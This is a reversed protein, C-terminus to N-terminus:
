RVAPAAKEEDKVYRYIIGAATDSAHGGQSLINWLAAYDALIRQRYDAETLIKELEQKLAEVNMEGQILEKVVPKDMILNVLSIYKVKILRRAIEYSIQDGKYCVAEPVGFLATELTATGSTVLAASAQTLLGYTNNRITQVGPYGELLPAFFTDDLSPAQAVIFQYEPFYKSVALMVPLKLAVEQKRSGPLLAVIPKSSLPAQVQRKAEEVVEVLPHGVYDVEYNWKRYFEKEFPLIVLM